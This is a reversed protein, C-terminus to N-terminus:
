YKLYGDSDREENIRRPLGDFRAGKAICDENEQDYTTTVARSCCCDSEPDPCCCCRRLLVMLLGGMIELRVRCLALSVGVIYLNNHNVDM